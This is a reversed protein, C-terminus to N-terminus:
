PPSANFGVDRLDYVRGPLAAQIGEDLWGLAVTVALVLAAPAKVRRGHLRREILAQHVLVAVLSYEILHTREEWHEVRVWVMLYTATVGLAVWIERWAPRGKVWPVAISAAAVVLVLTAAVRLLNRERLVEVVTVAPGLTSYIALQLALGWFWLRRERDSAFLPMSTDLANNVRLLM